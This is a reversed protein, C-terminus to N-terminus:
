WIPFRILYYSDSNPLLEGYTALMEGIGRIFVFDSLINIFLIDKIQVSSGMM